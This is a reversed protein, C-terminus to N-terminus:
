EPLQDQFEKQLILDRRLIPLVQLRLVQKRDHFPLRVPYFIIPTSPLRGQQTKEPLQIAPIALNSHGPRQPLLEKVGEGVTIGNIDTYTTRFDNIYTLNSDLVFMYQNTTGVLFMNRKKDFHIANADLSFPHNFDINEIIKKKNKLDYLVLGDKFTYALKDNEYM